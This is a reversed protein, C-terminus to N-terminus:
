ESMSKACSKFVLITNTARVDTELAADTSRSFCVHCANWSAVSSANFILTKFSAIIHNTQFRWISEASYGATTSLLRRRDASSLEMLVNDFISINTHCGPGKGFLFCWWSEKTHYGLNYPCTQPQATFALRTGTIRFDRLIISHTQLFFFGLPNRQVLRAKM